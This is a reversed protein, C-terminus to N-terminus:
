GVRCGEAELMAMVVELNVPYDEVVLVCPTGVRRGREGPNARPVLGRFAGVVRPDWWGRRTEADLTDLAAHPPLARRYPRDTTLADYVDVVQLIRATLPVM